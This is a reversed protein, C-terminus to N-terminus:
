VETISVDVGAAAVLRAIDAPDSTLIDDGDRALCVVAADIVDHGGADALLRGADRGLGATLPLVKTAKLARAVRAQRAGGARWVQGVVGGHTLIAVDDRAAARLYQGILRDGRELALFAGADFVFSM